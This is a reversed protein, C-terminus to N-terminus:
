SPAFRYRNAAKANINVTVAIPSIQGSLPEIMSTERVM